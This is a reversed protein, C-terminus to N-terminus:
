CREFCRSVDRFAEVGLRKSINRPTEFRRSVDRFKDIPKKSFGTGSFGTEVGKSFKSYGVRGAGCIIINM